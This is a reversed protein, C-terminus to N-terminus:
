QPQESYHGYEKYKQGVGIHDLEFSVPECVGKDKM